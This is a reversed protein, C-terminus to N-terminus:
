LVLKSEVWSPSTDSAAPPPAFPSIPAESFSSAPEVAAAAAATAAAVAAAAAAASTAPPAASADAALGRADLTEAVGPSATQTSAATPTAPPLHPKVIHAPPLVLPKDVALAVGTSLAAVCVILTLARSRANM